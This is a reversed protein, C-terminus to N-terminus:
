EKWSISIQSSDNHPDYTAAIAGWDYPYSVILGEKEVVPPPGLEQELFQRHAFQLALVNFYAKDDFAFSMIKLADNHLSFSFYTRHGAFPLYDTSHLTWGKKMDFNRLFTLGLTNIQGASIGGHIVADNDLKLAGQATDFINSM